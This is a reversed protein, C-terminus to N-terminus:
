IISIKYDIIINRETDIIDYRNKFCEFCWHDEYRKMSYKELEDLCLNHTEFSIVKLPKGYLTFTACNVFDIDVYEFEDPVKTNPLFLMGIWYELMGNVIRKGGIYAENYPNAKSLVNFWDNGHLEKWKSLFNINGNYRKGIFRLSPLVEKYIRLIKVNDDNNSDIKEGCLLEEVSIHLVASISYLMNIDPETKNNEWKSIAQRTVNLKEALLDQTLSMKTRFNKINEGIM